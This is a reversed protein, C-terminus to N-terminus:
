PNWAFRPRVLRVAGAGHKEVPRGTAVRRAPVHHARTAAWATGLADTRSSAHSVAAGRGRGATAIGGAEVERYILGDGIALGSSGSVEGDTGISLNFNTAIAPGRGPAVANSVSLSLGDEDFGVAIGRALNVAGSRSRTRAFGVDGEYRASSEAIGDHGRVAGVRAATEADSALAANPSFWALTLLLVSAVYTRKM